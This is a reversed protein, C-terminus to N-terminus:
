ALAFKKSFYFTLVELDSYDGKPFFCNLHNNQKRPCCFGELCPDVNLGIASLIALVRHLKPWELHLLTLHFVISRQITSEGGVGWCCEISNQGNQTESHLLLLTLPFVISRKITSGGGGVLLLLFHFHCLPIAAFISM